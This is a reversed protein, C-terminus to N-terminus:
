KKWNVVSLGEVRGFERINNTVLAVGESMAHASILMDMAGILTGSKQLGARLVGYEAAAREGYPLVEFMTLFGTLALRNQEPKSSNRVGFELESLTLASIYLDDNMNARIAWLVGEDGKIAYICTDTDLMYRM